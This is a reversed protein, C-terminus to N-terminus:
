PEGVGQRRYDRGLHAYHEAAEALRRCTEDSLEKRVRAPVGAVLTRPPVIMREPIVCGAAVIAREGIEAEHLIVANM